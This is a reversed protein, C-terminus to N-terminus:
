ALSLAMEIMQNFTKEREESSIEDGTVLSDSVTCIALAQVKAKKAATFLEAAEMEVALVGYEAWRFVDEGTDDYFLDSSLLSGVHVPFDHEKAYQYAQLLMDFDATPAYTHGFFRRPIMSSNTCASMALVIDRVGVDKQLSGCSGIRCLRKVGYFNILEHIYIGASPMGMGTGQVSVKKGKYTGTFGWMGRVTNYKVVDELYTYAIFEARQPDGPLLVLEAINQPDTEIHRHGM